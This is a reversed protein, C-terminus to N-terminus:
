HFTGVKLCLSVCSLVRVWAWGEGGGTKRERSRGACHHRVVNQATPSAPPGLRWREGAGLDGHGFVRGVLVGGISFNSANLLVSGQRLWFLLALALDVDQKMTATSGQCCTTASMRAFVLPPAAGERTVWKSASSRPQEWLYKRKGRKKRGKAGIPTRVSVRLSVAGEGMVWNLAM